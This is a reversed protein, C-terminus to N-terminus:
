ETRQASAYILGTNLLRYGSNARRMQFDDNWSEKDARLVSTSAELALPTDEGLALKEQNHEDIKERATYPNNCSRM